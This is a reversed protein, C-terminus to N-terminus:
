SKLDQWDPRRAPGMSSPFDIMRGVLSSDYNCRATSLAILHRVDIRRDFPDSDMAQADVTIANTSGQM